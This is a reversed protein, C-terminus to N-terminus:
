PKPLWFSFSRWDFPVNVPIALSSSALRAPYIASPYATCLIFSNFPCLSFNSCAISFLLSTPSLIECPVLISLLIILLFTCFLSIINPIAPKSIQEITTNIYMFNDYNLIAHTNLSNVQIFNTQVCLNITNLWHM